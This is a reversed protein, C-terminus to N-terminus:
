QTFSPPPTSSSSIFFFKHLTYLSFLIFSSSFGVLWVALFYSSAPLPLGRIFSISCQLSWDSIITTSSTSNWSWDSDALDCINSSTTCSTTTTTTSCHRTPIAHTSVSSPKNAMLSHHWLSLFAKSSNNGGLSSQNQVIIQALSNLLNTRLTEPDEM